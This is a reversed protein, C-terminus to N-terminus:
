KAAVAAPKFFLAKVETKWNAERVFQNFNLPWSALDILAGPRMRQAIGFDV